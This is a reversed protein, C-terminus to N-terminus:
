APYPRVIGVLPLPSGDPLLERSRDGLRHPVLHPDLNRPTCPRSPNQLYVLGLVPRACRVQPQTAAGSVAATALGGCGRVRLTPASTSAPVSSRVGSGGARDPDRTVVPSSARTSRPQPAPRRLPLQARALRWDYPVRHLMSTIEALVWRPGTLLSYTNELVLVSPPNESLRRFAARLVDLACRLDVETVNRNLSSHKICPFGWFAFDYASAPFAGDGRVDAPFATSPELPLHPYCAHVLARLKTNPQAVARLSTLPPLPSSPLHM